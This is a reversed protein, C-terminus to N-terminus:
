DPAPSKAHRISAGEIAALTRALNSGPVAGAVARADAMTDVDRLSPLEGVRLGLSHLRDRQATLTFPSSMPVGVVARPDALGLGLAWYGSDDTPGLVADVGPAGLTALALGLLEPTVQPTDAAIAVAPTGADVFAAALREDLGTGRQAVVGFGPPLWDGPAGDLAVTRWAAPSAAVAALTDALLAAALTAAEEPTCPPCLRTKVRGAVPEKAMVIIGAGEAPGPSATAESPTM